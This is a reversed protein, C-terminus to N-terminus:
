PELHGIFFSVRSLTPPSETYTQVLLRDKISSPVGGDMKRVRNTM